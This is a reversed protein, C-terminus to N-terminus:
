VLLSNSEDDFFEPMGTTTNFVRKLAENRAKVYQKGLSNWSLIASLRETKNRLKLSHSDPRSLSSPYYGFLFCERM